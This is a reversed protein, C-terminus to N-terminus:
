YTFEINADTCSAGVVTVMDIGPIPEVRYGEKVLVHPYSENDVYCYESYRRAIVSASTQGAPITVSVREDMREDSSTGYIVRHELVYRLRVSVTAAVSLPKSLSASVRLYCPDRYFTSFTSDEPAERRTGDIEWSASTAVPTGSVSIAREVTQSQGHDDSVIFRLRATGRASPLFNMRIQRAGDFALTTGSNWGSVEPTSLTGAGESLEYRVRFSGTYDAESFSLYFQVPVGIRTTGPDTTSAEIPRYPTKYTTEIQRELPFGYADSLTFVIRAPGEAAQTYAIRASKSEGQAFLFPVGPSHSVGDITLTGGGQPIAYALYFLGGPNNSSRLSLTTHATEGPAYSAQPFAAVDLETTTIRTDTENMGLMRVQMRYHTNRRVNFDSTTNEGPYVYCDAKRGDYSAEIHLCTAAAPANARNRARPDTITANTGQANEWLYYSGEFREGSLTQKPYDFTGGAAPRNEGFFTCSRPASCLQVSRILLHGQLAPAVEISVDLRSVCRELAVSLTTNGTVAVEQRAAMPLTGNHTLEEPSDISAAYAAVREQPLAGLDSGANAIVYLEYDTPYLTTSVQSTNADTYVHRAIDDGFRKSFFWVNLDRVAKEGEPSLARTATEMGPADFRLTVTASAPVAEDPGEGDLTQSLCAHSLPLLAAACLATILFHKM